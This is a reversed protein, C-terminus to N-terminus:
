LAHRRLISTAVGHLTDITARPLEELVRRARESLQHESWGRARALEALSDATESRALVALRSELRERIEAAAARSFTTAVIRETPVQKGDARLGLAFALYIGTLLQTKGTGASAAIVANRELGPLSM